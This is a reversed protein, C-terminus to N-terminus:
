KPQSLTQVEKKAADLAGESAGPVALAQKYYKAAEDPDGGAKSLRALYVYSWAKTQGDPSSEVTKEFLKFAAEPENQLVSIRALGYWEQAHEQPGGSQELAKLYLKKADELNRARYEEEAKALTRGSPSVDPAPTAITVQHGMRVAPAADFKVSKVRATEHKLDMSNLMDELYLRLAQPQKEYEPLQEAFYATLVYGQRMAQQVEGSNKDLRSEVAKILSENALLVFDNKFIADLPADQVLDLLTAKNELAMGYKIVLPDIQYHLYSDRLDFLRLQPSPTVIVFDDDGYHRVHVQEPAGLLDIFVRFRRGLFGSSTVRVYGDVATTQSLIPAHYRAMEKEYAPQAAKWLEDGNAEKWFEALLPAFDALLMADPPVEVDRTRWGFDPAGKVSLAFSIYQALDQVGTKQQHRRYFDKLSPLVRLNLQALHERLQARLPNNDPLTLGDDYGAANIAALVAFLNENSDLEISEAARLRGFSLLCVAALCLLRKM